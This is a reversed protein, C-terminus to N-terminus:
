RTFQVKIQNSRTAGAAVAEQDQEAKYKAAYLDRLKVLEELRQRVAARQAITYSALDQAALREITGELQDLTRKVHTRGDYLADATAFNKKVFCTGTAVTYAEAAKTVVAAWWYTGENWTATTAATITIAFKAGDASAQITTPQSPGRFYYKLVWSTAPYDASLDERRWAVTDGSFVETPEKTPITPTM